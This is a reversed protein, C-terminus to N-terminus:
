WRRTFPAISKSSVWSTPTAAKRRSPQSTPATTSSAVCSAARTHRRSAAALIGLEPHPVADSGPEDRRLDARTCDYVDDLSSPRFYPPYGLLVLEAGASEARAVADLNEELDNFVAHHIVILRGAAQDVMMAVSQEYEQISMVVESVALTGTFGHAICTEVDHRIARENLRKFDSTVTPIVVNAVGKLHERAWDRAEGKTYTAM